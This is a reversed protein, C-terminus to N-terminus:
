PSPSVKSSARRGSSLSACNFITPLYTTIIHLPRINSALRRQVHASINATVQRSCKFLYLHPPLTSSEVIATKVRAYVCIHSTPSAAHFRPLAAVGHRSVDPRSRESGPRFSAVSDQAQFRRAHNTSTPTHSLSLYTSCYLLIIHTLSSFPSFFKNVCDQRRAHYAKVSCKPTAQLTSPPFPPFPNAPLVRVCGSAIPRTLSLAPASRYLRATYPRAVRVCPPACRMCFRPLHTWQRYHKCNQISFQLCM